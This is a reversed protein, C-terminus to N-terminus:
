LLKKKSGLLTKFLALKKGFFPKIKELMCAKIKPKVRFYKHFYDFIM